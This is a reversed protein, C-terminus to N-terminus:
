RINLSDQYEFSRLWGLNELMFLVSSAFFVLCSWLFSLLIIRSLFTRLIRREGFFKKLYAYLIYARLNGFDLWSRLGEREPDCQALIIFHSTISLLDFLNHLQLTFIFKNKSALWRFCYSIILLIMFFSEIGWASVEISNNGARTVWASCVYVSGIFQLASNTFAVFSSSLCRRAKEISRSRDSPNIWDYIISFLVIPGQITLWYMIQVNILAWSATFCKSDSNSINCACVMAFHRTSRIDKPPFIPCLLFDLIETVLHLVSSFTPM